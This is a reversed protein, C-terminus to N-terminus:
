NSDETKWATATIAKTKCKGWRQMGEGKKVTRCINLTLAKLVFFASFAEEWKHSCSHYSMMNSTSNIINITINNAQFGMCAVVPSNLMEHPMNSSYQTSSTSVVLNGLYWLHIQVFHFFSSNEPRPPNMIENKYMVALPWIPSFGNVM